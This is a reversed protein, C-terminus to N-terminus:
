WSDQVDRPRDQADRGSGRARDLAAMDGDVWAKVLISYQDPRAQMERVTQRLSAVQESWPAQSLIAMQEAPTEFAKLEAQPRAAQAITREM